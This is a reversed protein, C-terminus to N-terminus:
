RRQVGTPMSMLYTITVTDGPQPDAYVDEVAIRATRVQTPADDHILVLDYFRTGHIDVLRVDRLTADKSGSMIM